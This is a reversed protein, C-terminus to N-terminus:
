LTTYDQQSQKEEAHVLKHCSECLVIGSVDNTTHYWAAWDAFCDKRDFDEGPEGLTHIGKQLIAAFREKDHHVELISTASCKQCKFGSAALKPYTWVKYLRSRVLPALASVGGKWNSTAPGSLTVLSGSKWQESMLSARKESHEPQLLTHSGKIGLAAVREDTEKTLGKNWIQIEHRKHMERRVAQSKEKVVPNNGWNNKIRSIHGRLYTGFGKEVSFFKTHVGCGCACTPEIGHHFLEICLQKATANHQSRYHISLSVLKEYSKDCSPCKIM